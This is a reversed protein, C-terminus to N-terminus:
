WVKCMLEGGVGQKRATEGSLIGSSTSVVAMGRGRLVRPIEDASVYVRRGPKSIRHIETIKGPKNNENLRLQLKPKDEGQVEFGAIYGSDTLVQALAQKPKSFPVDIVQKNIANANRIRTLMDAIPDTM